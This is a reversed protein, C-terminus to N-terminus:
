IYKKIGFFYFSTTPTTKTRFFFRTNKNSAIRIKIDYRFLSAYDIKDLVDATTYIKNEESKNITTSLVSVKVFKYEKAKIHYSNVQKYVQSYSPGPTHIPATLFVASFLISNLIGM